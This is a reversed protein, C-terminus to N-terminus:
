NELFEGEPFLDLITKQPSLFLGTIGVKEAGKVHQISDDIFVTEAANLNNERLVFEFIDANPKRMGIRCSYYHNEFYDSFDSFGFTKKLYTSFATIHIENTNSLLFLRYKKSLNRLLKLREAPLDKLMANWAHDISEDSTNQPLHKKLERRFEDPSIKGCDFLDFAGAQKAQTFHQDFNEMGLSIFANRTKEMELNLLVGGLDFIINKIM